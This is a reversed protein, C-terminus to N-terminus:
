AQCLLGTLNHYFEALADPFVLFVGLVALAVLAVILIYEVAAVGRRGTSHRPSFATM